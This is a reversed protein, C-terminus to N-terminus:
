SYGRLKSGIGLSFRPLESVTASGLGNGSLNAMQVSPLKGSVKLSKISYRKM